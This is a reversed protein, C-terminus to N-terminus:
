DAGPDLNRPDAGPRNRIRMSGYTVERVIRYGLYGSAPVVGIWGGLVLDSPRQVFWIWAALLTAVLAGAALAWRQAVAGARAVCRDCWFLRDVDDKPFPTSCRVCTVLSDEPAM